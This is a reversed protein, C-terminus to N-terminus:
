YNENKIELLNEAHINRSKMVKQTDLFIFEILAVVALDNGIPFFVVVM